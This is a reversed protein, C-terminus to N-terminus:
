ADFLELQLPSLAEKEQELLRQKEQVAYKRLVAGAAALGSLVARQVGFGAGEKPNFGFADGACFLTEEPNAWYEAAVGQSVQAYRWRHAQAKKVMVTKKVLASFAEVIKEKVMDEDCELHEVTWDTTMHIMWYDSDENQSCARQPKRNEQIVKQFDGTKEFIDQEIGMPQCELMLAWVPEMQIEPLTASIAAPLLQKTQLLPATCILTDFASSCATETELKWSTEAVIRSIKTGLQLQKEPLNSSLFASIASMTPKAVWRNSADEAEGTSPEWRQALGLHQLLRVWFLMRPDSVEFYPAGHDLSWCADARSIRTSTRGGVARGKDFICVTVGYRHLINAAVLGSLGAGLIGVRRNRYQNRQLLQSQYQTVPLRAAHAFACRSRVTGLISQEPFARDFLGLCWLLGGYSSPDRGDLAYRHNLDVLFRLAQEPNQTWHLLQKGWTMRINNHLEGEWQLSRQCENWLESTTQRNSLQWYNYIYRPDLRHQELTEQAWSPLSSLSEPNDVQACWHYSLERWILLEDLFKEAGKGQHQSLERVIRFPSIMGYHFYPSLRSVGDVLPNNRDKHYNKLASKLFRQYRQYGTKSGGMLLAPPISHDIKATAILASLQERELTLDPFLSLAESQKQLSPKLSEAKWCLKRNREREVSFYDRFHYARAWTKRNESKTMPVICACDVMWMPAPSYAKVRRALKRLPPTPFYEAVVLAARGTLERLRPERHGERDLQFLYRIGKEKAEEQLDLVGELIFQHHRDSAFPYRESLGQYVVLPKGLENAMYIALDLAPNEHLRMATCMWYLVFEGDERIPDSSCFSREALHRPIITM